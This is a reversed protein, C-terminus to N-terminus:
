RTRKITFRNQSNFATAKAHAMAIHKSSTVKDILVLQLLQESLNADGKCFGPVTADTHCFDSSHCFTELTPTWSQGSKLVVRNNNTLQIELSDAVGTIIKDGAFINNNLYLNWQEGGIGQVTATNTLSIVKGIAIMM